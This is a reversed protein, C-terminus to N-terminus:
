QGLLQEIHSSERVETNSGYNLIISIVTTGETRVKTHPQLNEDLISVTFETIKDTITRLFYTESFPITLTLRNSSIYRANLPIVQIIPAMQQGYSISEVNELRIFFIDSSEYPEPEPFETPTYIWDTLKEKDFWHIRLANFLVIFNGQNRQSVSSHGVVQVFTNIGFLFFKPEVYDSWSHFVVSQSEIKTNLTNGPLIMIDYFNTITNKRLRINFKEKDLSSGYRWNKFMVDLNDVAKYLQDFPSSDTKGFDIEDEKSIYFSLKVQVASGGTKLQYEFRLTGLDIDDQAFPNKKIEEVIKKNSYQEKTEPPPPKPDDPKIPISIKSLAVSDLNEISPRMTNSFFQANNNPYDGKNASSVLRIVNNELEMDTYKLGLITTGSLVPHPEGNLNTILIHLSNIEKIETGIYFFDTLFEVNVRQSKSVDSLNVFFDNLSNVSQNAIHSSKTEESNVFFFSNTNLFEPDNKIKTKDIFVSVKTLGIYSVNVIPPHLVNTYDNSTNNPFVIKNASSVLRFPVEM